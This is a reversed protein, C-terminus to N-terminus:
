EHVMEEIEDQWRNDVTLFTMAEDGMDIVFTKSDVKYDVTGVSGPLFGRHEKLLRVRSGEEIM